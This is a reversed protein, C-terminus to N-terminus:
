TRKKSNAAVSSTIVNALSRLVNVMDVWTYSDIHHRAYSTYLYVYINCIYLAYKCIYKKTIYIHLLRGCVSQCYTAAPSALQAIPPAVLVINGCLFIAIDCYHYLLYNGKCM